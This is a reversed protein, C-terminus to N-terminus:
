KYVEIIITIAMEIALLFGFAMLCWKELRRIRTEHDKEIAASEGKFDVFDKVLLRTAELNEMRRALNNNLSNFGEEVKRDLAKLREDIRAIQAAQTEENM